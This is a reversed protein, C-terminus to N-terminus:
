ELKLLAAPSPIDNTDVVTLFYFGPQAVRSDPPLQISLDERAPPGSSAGVVQFDLDVYRQNWDFAHTVSGTSLLAVRSTAFGAPLQVTVQMSASYSASSPAAIIEPRPTKFFYPPRYIEVTWRNNSSEYSQGGASVVRGDPLQLAVGHYPRVDQQPAMLRWQPDGSVGFIEPTKLLEPRLRAKCTGTSDPGTGGIVLLSGDLLTVCNLNKRPHRLPTVSEWAVSEPDELNPHQFGSRLYRETLDIIPLVCGNHDDNGHETGGMTYVLDSYGGAGALTVFHAASGGAHDAQHDTLPGQKWRHPESAGSCSENELDIFRSVHRHDTSNVREESDIWMAQGDSLMLVKAYDWISLGLPTGCNGQPLTENLHLPGITSSLADFRERVLAPDDQPLPGDPPGSHGMVLVDGNIWRTTVPYYRRLGLTSPLREWEGLLQNFVLILSAGVTSPTTFDRGGAAFIDGNALTVHGACFPDESGDLAIPFFKAEVQSKDRADPNWVFSRPNYSGSAANPWNWFMVSGGYAGDAIYVAHAIEGIAGDQKMGTEVSYPGEWQGFQFPPM